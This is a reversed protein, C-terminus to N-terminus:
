DNDVSLTASATSANSIGAKVAKLRAYRCDNPAPTYRINALPPCPDIGTTGTQVGLSVTRLIAAFNSTDSLELSYTITQTSPLLTLSLAPAAFVLDIKEPKPGNGLDIPSSATTAAGNPLVLSQTLSADLM